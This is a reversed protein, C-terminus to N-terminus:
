KLQERVLGIVQGLAEDLRSLDKGGAQALTPRGGGSGGVTSAIKKVLDGARVGRKVVDETVAAIMQPKGDVPTALVIVASGLKDRLWDSMERLIDMDGAPVQAAVVAVAPGSGALPLVQAAGEALRATQQRALEGRLKGIEKQATQLEGYLGRVARDLENPRVRLMAATQDMLRLREQVLQQAKRGTVAEIRRVGAGISEEGTIHFTGIQGTHAVHTGGCLEKSFAEGEDGIRIVRVDDGYKETFLAMAGGEVADRYRMQSSGVPYDALIADNVLQEVADIQDQTLMGTHTFDFRLRDPEVVSGAQHVHEGLVYRLESHLLHTATHNRMIDMRRAFDVAVWAADGVRPHGRLVEGSHVILGPIPRRVDDIRIEWTPAVGDDVCEEIVGTDSVQGGSEVYFPTVPVVIEVRDGPGATSVSEGGRVLAALSTSHAMEEYCVQRVGSHPLAGNAKLDRLTDLYVRADTTEAMEFQAASRAREQQEALASQYGPLDVNLGHDRAVDQTLDLPFGYTDYLRFAEDGPITVRGEAKLGAIVGDLLELGVSLTQSFRVEEQEITTLIFDRRRVLEDYAGGMMEIVTKALEALFPRNFGLMRGHRAARRLILRLVYGRGENSPLVGDGVLFTVGRIHDAIVRYSVRHAEREADSHGLLTQTAKIIPVFLDTDYNSEVGQLVKVAREFGMGTDVHKAPLEELRDDKTHNYQIFVLNWLEIYRRCDGNVRCIHGPVDQKDCADPGMDLHIESCPGCPGTEGMEWFNDKRGFYLVHEPLIDTLTQWYGLAEGDRGLNGKDDQFVTAWLRGKPLHWVETLLEWAWSIAEKKYYDGFSWNGLMEFFTHHFPSRGVEDLDNHKGNVRMCKQADAVRTNEPERLGLFIDKFQNMGANTFLLTPDGLPVLPASPVIAHGKSRFFDLFQQRIEASAPKKM